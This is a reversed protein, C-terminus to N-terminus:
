VNPLHGLKRCTLNQLPFVVSYFVLVLVFSIFSQPIVRIKNVDARREIIGSKDLQEEHTNLKVLSHGDQKHNSICESIDSIYTSINVLM